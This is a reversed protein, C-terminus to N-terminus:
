QIDFDILKFEELLKNGRQPNVELIRNIKGLLHQKLFQPSSTEYSGIGHVLLNHIEAKTKRYEEKSINLKENVVFGTVDQRKYSYLIKIKQKNISFGEQQIIRIFLSLFKLIKRDGSITIDDQYITLNFGYKECINKIRPELSSKIILNAISSSTPFGQALKNNFTTLKSLIEAEKGSFGYDLFLQYVRPFKISPFFDSIDLKIIVTEAIHPLANTKPSRFKVSGHLSDPLYLRQLYHRNIKRLITKLEPDPKNIIRFGGDKKRKPFSRVHLHMSESIVELKQVPVDLFSPIEINNM